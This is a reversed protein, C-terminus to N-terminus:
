LKGRKRLDRLKNMIQSESRKLEKAAIQRAGQKLRGSEYTESSRVIEILREEEKTTWGYHKKEKTVKKPYLLAYLNDLHKKADYECIIQGDNIITLTIFRKCKKYCRCIRAQQDEPMQTLDGISM